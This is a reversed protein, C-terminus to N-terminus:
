REKDNELISKLSGGIVKWDEELAEKDSKIKFEKFSNYECDRNFNFMNGVEVFFDAFIRGFNNM